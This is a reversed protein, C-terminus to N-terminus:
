QIGGLKLLQGCEDYRRWAGAGSREKIGHVHEVSETGVGSEVFEAHHVSFQHALHLFLAVGCSVDGDLDPEHVAGREFADVGLEADVATAGHFAETGALPVPGDSWVAGDAPCHFLVEFEGAGVEEVARGALHQGKVVVVAVCEEDAMALM